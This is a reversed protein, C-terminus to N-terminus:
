RAELERRLSDMIDKYEPTGRLSDMDTDVSINAHNKYGKKVAERLLRLAEPKDGMLAYLCAKNYLDGSDNDSDKLNRQMAELAKDRQGLFHYAFPAYATYISSDVAMTDAAITDATEAVAVTDETEWELEARDIIYQFDQRAAAEQGLKRRVQGRQLYYFLDNPDRTIASDFDEAAGALDGTRWRCVARAGFAVDSFPACQIVEGFTKIAEATRGAYNQARGKNYLLQLDTTDAAAAHAAADAALDYHCLAHHCAALRTYTTSNTPDAEASRQYWAAAKSLRETRENIIGLDYAWYATNQPTRVLKERLKKEVVTYASDALDQMLSFARDSSDIDLAKIVNDAAQAYQKTDLLIQARWAPIESYDADLKEAEDLLALAEADHKREHLNRALGVRAITSGEDLAMMQRYDQDSRDYQGMNYYLQARPKYRDPEDPQTNIAQTYCELAKVSDGMETYIGGRNMHAYALWPKDAALLRVAKAYASLANGYQHANGWMAGALYYAYGNDPHVELEKNILSWATSDSGEQMAEIASQIFFSYKMSEDDAAAHLAVAVLLTLSLLLKRM